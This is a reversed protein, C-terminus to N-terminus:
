VAWFLHSSESKQPSTHKAAIHWSHTSLWYITNIRPFNNKVLHVCQIKFSNKFFRGVLETIGYIVTHGANALGFTTSTLFLCFNQWTQFFHHFPSYSKLAPQTQTFTLDVTTIILNQVQLYITVITLKAIFGFLIWSKTIELAWSANELLLNNKFM